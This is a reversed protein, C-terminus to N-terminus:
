KYVTIFCIEYQEIHFIVRYWIIKVANLCVVHRYPPNLSNIIKSKDNVFIEIAIRMNIKNTGWQYFVKTDKIRNFREDSWANSSLQLKSKDIGENTIANFNRPM